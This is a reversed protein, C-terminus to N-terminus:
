HDEPTLGAPCNDYILSAQDACDCPNAALQNRRHQMAHLAPDALEWPAKGNVLSYARLVGALAVVAADTCGAGTYAKPDATVDQAITDLDDPSVDLVTALRALTMAATHTNLM